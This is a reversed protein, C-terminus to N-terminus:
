PLPRATVVALADGSPKLITVGSGPRDLVYVYGRDDLEVINAETSTRCGGTGDPKACAAKTNANTGEIFYGVERPNYPDRIDWVRLGADFWTVFALKGYYPAYIEWPYHHAGFRAGKGCFDGPQQAVNLTAIPWPTRDDSGGYGGLDILTANHPAMGQCALPTAAESTTVLLNMRIPAGDLFGKQAQPLPLGFIPTANHAGQTPNQQLYSVQPYLLDGRTPRTACDPSASAIRCGNLLKDRDVIQLTGGRCCGYPLYVRNIKTGASYVEHLGQASVGEACDGAASNMCAPLGKPDADPQQGPLGFDRIFVPKAPDSMDYIKVHQLTHWGDKAGGAVVYAIGTDCEWWSKHTATLDGVITALLKPAAPDTVDWVEQDKDPSAGANDRLLYFHGKEAHPLTDGGCVFTHPAGNAKAPIHFLFHPRAPDTVDYITTGNPEAKGTPTNSETGAGNGVYLIYRDGQHEVWQQDGEARGQNDLHGIVRMNWISQRDPAAPPPVKLAPLGAAGEPGETLAIAPVDPGNPLYRDQAAAAASLCLLM